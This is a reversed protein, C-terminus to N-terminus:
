HTETLTPRTVKLMPLLLLLSLLGAAAAVIFSWTLTGTTDALWGGVIPSTLLGIGLYFTWLGIIGGANIKSFFDSACAAYMSWCAGYGFGFIFTFIMLALGRNYAIALCGGTILIACMVMVKIRGLRDSIPGLTLKGVLGGVGIITVLMTALDYSFSLEQVAYTSIFTFPMMIAFGTLMYAFGILWFRRDSFLQKYTIGVLKERGGTKAPASYSNSKPYSRVLVFDVIGLALGLIGLSMWGLRWDSAAVALPVLSGAAIVGLTSGADVIALTLGRRKDSTWRQAVAMVPAWCAACGIGAITFFASAQLISNSYQMLFTGAGMISVFVALIIRIDYRDSIMGMVPSLVTYAIFYSSYIAGAQIKSIGLSPLMEPLLTGYSYRIAYAAFVTLICASLVAIARKSM